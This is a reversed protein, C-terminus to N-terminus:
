FGMFIFVANVAWNIVYLTATLYFKRLAPCHAALAMAVVSTDLRRCWGVDLAQLQPCNDVIAVLSATDIERARWM